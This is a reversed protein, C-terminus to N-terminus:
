RLVTVRYAGQLAESDGLYPYEALVVRGDDAVLHHFFVPGETRCTAVLREDGGRGDAPSSADFIRAGYLDRRVDSMRDAAGVIWTQGDPSRSLGHFRDEGSWTWLLEGALDHVWLGNENPHAMPPRLEPSAAGYPINTGSTLYVVSKSTVFGFGVSAVIPVEGAMVPAGTELQRRLTGDLSRLQVRGDNFGMLLTNAAVSIGVAEWVTASSFWPELAKEKAQGVPTLTALDLIQVGDIPLDPPPGDATRSIPIAVLGGAVDLQPRRFSADVPEAPWAALQEGGASLRLVQSRNQRIGQADNWAHTGVVLLDGNSLVELGFATPLTYVGYVDEGAPAPSHGVQESLAHVWRDKLSDPDLARVMADPSQEAAYLTQGDLSWAVQKVMTEALRRRAIEAGTWADVVVVEGRYSGIALREGDPSLALATDPAAGGMAVLRSVDGLPVSFLPVCSAQAPAIDTLGGLEVSEGPTWPQETLTRSGGVERGTGSPAIVGNRVFILEGQPRETQTTCALIAPLLFTV